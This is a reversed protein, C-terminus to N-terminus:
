LKEPICTINPNEEYFTELLKELLEKKGDDGPFALTLEVQKENGAAKNNKPTNSGKTSQENGNGCGALALALVAVLFLILAKKM